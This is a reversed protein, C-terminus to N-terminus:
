AAVPLRGDTCVACAVDPCREVVTFSFEAEALLEEIDQTQHDSDNM